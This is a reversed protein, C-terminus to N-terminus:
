WLPAIPSTRAQGPQGALRDAPGPSALPSAMVAAGPATSRLAGVRRPTTRDSWVEQLDRELVEVALNTLTTLQDELSPQLV